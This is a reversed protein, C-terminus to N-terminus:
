PCPQCGPKLKKCDRCCEPCTVLFSSGIHVEKGIDRDCISCTGRSCQHDLKILWDRLHRKVLRIEPHPYVHIGRPWNGDLIIKFFEMLLFRSKSRFITAEVFNYPMYVEGREAHVPPMRM